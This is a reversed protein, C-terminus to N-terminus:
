SGRVIQPVSSPVDLVIQVLGAYQGDAYWPAQCVLQRLGGKEVTYVNVRPHELLERFKSRGPEPHCEALDRGVLDEGGQGAFDEVARNNLELAVGATDCVVISGAFERMWRPNSM